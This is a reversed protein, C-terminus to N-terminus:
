AEPSVRRDLEAVAECIRERLANPEFPKELCRGPNAEVFQSARPTFAGGTIFIMRSAMDPRRRSLEEFCDMGTMHPM